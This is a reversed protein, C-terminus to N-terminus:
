IIMPCDRVFDRTHFGADTDGSLIIVPVSSDRERIRRLVEFGDMEPLMLDLLILDYQGCIALELGRRGDNAVDTANGDAVLERQMLNSLKHEDEILPIRMSCVALSEM